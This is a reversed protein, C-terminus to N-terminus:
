PSLDRSVLPFAVCKFPTFAKRVPVFTRGFCRVPMRPVGRACVWIVKRAYAFVFGCFTTVANKHGNM